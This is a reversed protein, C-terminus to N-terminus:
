SHYFTLMGDSDNISVKVTDSDQDLMISNTIPALLSVTFSEEAEVQDFHVIEVSFCKQLEGVDFRLVDQLSIYDQDSVAILMCANMDYNLLVTSYHCLGMM